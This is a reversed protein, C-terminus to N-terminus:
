QNQQRKDNWWSGQSKPGRVPKKKYEETASRKLNFIM